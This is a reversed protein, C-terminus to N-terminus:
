RLLVDPKRCSPLRCGARACHPQRSYHRQPVSLGPMLRSATFGGATTARRLPPSGHLGGGSPFTRKRQQTLRLRDSDRLTPYRRHHLEPRHRDRGPQRPVITNLSRSTWYIHGADVALGFPSSVTIFSQDVGTGDLNARGIANVYEDTWYMHGADVALGAISTTSPPFTIFNEDVGTGDLNARGIQGEQYDAWYIHDADVAVAYAFAHGIIFNTNPETGDLNARSVFGTGLNTWYVHSSDVAVGSPAWDEGVTILSQNIGTGDLNARGITGADTTQLDTNAWYIHRSDVAVGPSDRSLGTIFSQDVGTGDLNARGISNTSTESSNTWYISAAVGTGALTLTASADAKKGTATLTAGDSM